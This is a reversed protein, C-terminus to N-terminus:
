DIASITMLRKYFAIMGDYDALSIREDTGHFRAVDEPRVHIPTFRYVSDTLRAMYRSDTGGVVLGPAIDADPTTERIAQAIWRYGSTDASSIPSAEEGGPLLAVKIGPDDVTERIHSAVGDISDGPKLRFNVLAEAHGPLVNAKNGGSIVTVATTTRLLANTAPQAELKRRVLPETLWLNALAWHQLGSMSEAVKEFTRRALGDIRAPMPHTELRGVAAALRGVVTQPPPMSSHGPAGDATLSFTAMGKEAVGIFAVPRDTGAVIGDTIAMGEDLVFEPHIGRRALLAAIQRAGHAGGAEEDHGSVIIITRRPQIGDAILGELAEFLALLNGKDDWTGRGWIFGDAIDGSFPAHHWQGETGPAIPVVDQHAMLLIPRLSPDSGAWSYILGYDNVTERTLHQHVLPFTKDLYAHLGALAEASADARGEVSLTPFRIAGALREAPSTAAAPASLVLACLGLAQFPSRRPM